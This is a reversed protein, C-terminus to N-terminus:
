PAKDNLWLLSKKIARDAVLWAEDSDKLVAPLRCEPSVAWDARCIAKGFIRILGSMKINASLDYSRLEQLM